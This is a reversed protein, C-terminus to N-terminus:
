FRVFLKLLNVRQLFSLVRDAWTKLRTENNFRWDYGDNRVLVIYRRTGQGITKLRYFRGKKHAKAM